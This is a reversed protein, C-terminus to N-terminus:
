KLIYNEALSTFDDLQEQQWKKDKRLETAMIRAVEPAANIAALADLFLVRIRRALVDEVTRAMENRVAWIVEGKLYPMSPILLDKFSQEQNMFDKLAKEDTGYISLYSGDSKTTCGHIPLQKTKSSTKKLGAIEIARNVTMEAMHRYTTWKGGTITVLGSPSVILKLDRSIEKTNGTEKQPAVLPRLGAYVSLVDEKQPSKIFYQSITKLIFEIEEELPVPEMEHKEMPTDTTGVLVHDQWPVAFLVRGDMTKPILLADRGPLFTRDFVLHIGQSSHILPRHEPVDMQLIHDVFVGTANIVVRAKLSYSRKTELNLAEVGIIKQGAKVLKTVPFYNIVVGGQEVCTQALNIALRADDFQGDFYKVGGVLGEPNLEPLLDMVQKRSMGKSNGFSLNGSLWDYLKLGSLYKWKQWRNYCPIIFAQKRVVHAANKLLIGRERLARFVLGIRGQALYRVGGHVLKTSRSSTGKAFDAQELLLTQYGRSAADVAVGLGTSGGGIVLIDWEEQTSIRQLAKGRNLLQKTPQFM